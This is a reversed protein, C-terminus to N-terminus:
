LREKKRRRWIMVLCENRQDLFPSTHEASIASLMLMNTNFESAERKVDYFLCENRQGLVSPYVHEM